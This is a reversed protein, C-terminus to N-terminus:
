KNLLMLQLLIIGIDKLNDLSNLRRVIKKPSGVESYDSSRRSESSKKPSLELQIESTRLMSGSALSAKKPKLPSSQFQIDIPFPYVRVYGEPTLYINKIHFLATYKQNVEEAVFKWIDLLSKFVYVVDSERFRKNRKIKKDIAMELTHNYYKTYIQLCIKKICMESELKIVNKSQLLRIVEIDVIHPHSRLSQYWRLKQQFKRYSSPDDIGNESYLMIYRFPKETQKFIKIPGFHESMM